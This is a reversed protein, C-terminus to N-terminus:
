RQEGCLSQWDRPGIWAGDAFGSHWVCSGCETGLIVYSTILGECPVTGSLLPVTESWAAAINLHLGIFHRM